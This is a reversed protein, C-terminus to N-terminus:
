RASPSRFACVPTPNNYSDVFSQVINGGIMLSSPHRIQKEKPVGKLQMPSGSSGRVHLSSKPTSKKPPQGSGTRLIIQGRM